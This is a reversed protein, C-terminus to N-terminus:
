RDRLVNSIDNWVLWHPNLSQAGHRTYFERGAINTPEVDVCVRLANQEDFWGALLRLLESAIGRGRYEPVVYIWQLEGDCDYRTTLHGAIYGVVADGELAVYIVRSLLAQQPHHEGALYRSMREESAGGGEDGGAWISAMAPIDALEAERYHITSM